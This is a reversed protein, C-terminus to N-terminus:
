GELGVTCWLRDGYGQEALFAKYVQDISGWLAAWKDLPVDPSLSIDPTGERSAVVNSPGKRYSWRLHNAITYEQMLEIKSNLGAQNFLEKATKPTYYFLHEIGYYFEKFENIDYLNLLPDSASPVLIIFKGTPKLLLKVSSFFAKPDAIHELVFIMTIYDFTGNKFRTELPADSVDYGLTDRCFETEKKNLDHGYVAKVKDKIHTMFHGTSCGLDLVVEDGNLMRGFRDGWIKTTKLMKEYYSRPDFASPEVHTLYTQHYEGEYFDKPFEYSGQDLFLLDCKNCSYVDAKKGFRVRGTVHRLDTGGCLYCSVKRTM